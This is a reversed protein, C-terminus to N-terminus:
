LYIATNHTSDLSVSRDAALNLSLNPTKTMAAYELERDSCRCEVEGGSV